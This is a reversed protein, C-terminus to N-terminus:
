SESLVDFLSDLALDWPQHQVLFVLVLAAIDALAGAPHADLAVMELALGVEV